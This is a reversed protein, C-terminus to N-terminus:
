RSRHRARQYGIVYKGIPTLSIARSLLTAFLLTLAAIVFTQLPYPHLARILELKWLWSRMIFIHSLYIGFSLASVSAIFTLKRESLGELRHSSRSVLSFLTATLTVVFISLYWFFSYFNVEVKGLYCAAPAILAVASAPILWRLTLARPYRNLYYGLLFYGAYGIFYYFASDPGVNVSLFLEVVPLATTVGWLILYMELDRKSARELWPSIVPAILYLGALAYMFWLIGTGQASFPISLVAHVPHPCQGDLCAVGIYFLSWIVTPWVVKSFRRSLFQGQSQRVPLLLAGSVMFFLGICPATLYSLTVMFMSSGGADPMPSHMLVVMVCALLRIADLYVIRSKM